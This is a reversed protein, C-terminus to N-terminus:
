RPPADNEGERVLSIEQIMHKVCGTQSKKVKRVITAHLGKSAQSISQLPRSLCLTYCFDFIASVAAANVLKATRGRKRGEREKGRGEWIDDTCPTNQPEPARGSVPYDRVDQLVKVSTLEVHTMAKAPVYTAQHQRAPCLYCSM